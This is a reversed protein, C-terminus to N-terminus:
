DSQGGVRTVCGVSQVDCGDHCANAVAHDGALKNSAVIEKCIGVNAVVVSCECQGVVAAATPWVDDAAVLHVTM